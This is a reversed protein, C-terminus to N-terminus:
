TIGLTDGDKIPSGSGVVLEQAVLERWGSSGSKGLAVYQAFEAAADNTGFKLSYTQGSAAVFAAYADAHVCTTLQPGSRM